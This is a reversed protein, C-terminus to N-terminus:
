NKNQISKIVQLFTFFKNLPYPTQSGLAVRVTEPKSRSM